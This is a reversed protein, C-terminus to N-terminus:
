GKRAEILSQYLSEFREAMTETSFRPANMLGGQSLRERLSSDSIIRCTADAFDDVSNDTLLGDVGDDVVEPTGAARVAVVPLGVSLAECVVLGQTETLSPFVFADASSYMKAVVERDLMGAFKVHNSIGLQKSQALMAQEYPGSGVIMLMANPYRERITKFANLLLGLNKEKAVRGVYLLLFADEPIGFTRRVELRDNFRTTVVGSKIVEVRTSVGYARLVNEVPHSPVVVADCQDYYRHMWSELFKKTWAKPVLPVYHTYETYLTHNTSIIPIRRQRSWRLGALGLVFPTHTHVIDPKFGSFFKKIRPAWPLPFPYGPALPTTLSSFRYVGEGDEHKPFHPAFLYVEHGRAILGDRLTAVSVSVGNIIPEFSETFIAIRMRSDGRQNSEIGLDGGVDRLVSECVGMEGAIKGM